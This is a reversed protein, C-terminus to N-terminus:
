LALGIELIHQNPLLGAGWRSAAVRYAYAVWGKWVRAKIGAAAAGRTEAPIRGRAPFSRIQLGGMLSVRKSLLLELGGKWRPVREESFEDNEWELEGLIALRERAPWVLFGASPRFAVPQTEPEGSTLIGAVRSEAKWVVVMPSTVRVGISARPWHLLLGGIAGGGFGRQRFELTERGAPRGFQDTTELTTKDDNQGLVAQVAAGARVVGDRGWGYGILIRRDARTSDTEGGSTDLGSFRSDDPAVLGVGFAGRGVPFAVAGSFSPYSYSGWFTMNSPRTVIVVASLKELHSLGAPNHWIALPTDISAVVAGGVAAASAGIELQALYSYGAIDAHSRPVLSVLVLIVWRAGRSGARVPNGM